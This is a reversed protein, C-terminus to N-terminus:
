AAEDIFVQTTAYTELFIIIIVKNNRDQVRVRDEQIVEPNPQQNEKSLQCPQEHTNIACKELIQGDTVTKVNEPHEPETPSDSDDTLIKAKREETAELTRPVLISAQTNPIDLSSVKGRFATEKQGSLSLTDEDERTYEEAKDDSETTQQSVQM